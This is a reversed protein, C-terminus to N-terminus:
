IGGKSLPLCLKVVLKHKGGKFRFNDVILQNLRGPRNELRMVTREDGAGFSKIYDTKLSAEKQSLKEESWHVCGECVSNSYGEVNDDGHEAPVM